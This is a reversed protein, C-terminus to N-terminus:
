AIARDSGAFERTEIGEIKVGGQNISIVGEVVKKGAAFMHFYKGDAPCFLNDPNKYKASAEIQVSIADALNKLAESKTEGDGMLNLELCHAVWRDSERYFVARLPIRLSSMMWGGARSGLRASYM